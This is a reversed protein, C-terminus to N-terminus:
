QDSCTWALAKHPNFVNLSHDSVAETQGVQGVPSNTQALQAAEILLTAAQDADGECQYLAASCSDLDAGCIQCSPFVTQFPQWVRCTHRGLAQMTLM